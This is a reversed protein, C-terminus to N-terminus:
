HSNSLMDFVRCRISYLQKLVQATNLARRLASSWEKTLAGGKPPHRMEGFLVDTAHKLKRAM